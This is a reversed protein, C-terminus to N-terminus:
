AVKWEMGIAELLAVQEPTISVESKEGLYAKRYQTLWEGLYYGDPCVYTRAMSLHGNEAFFASAHRYGRRWRSEKEWEFGIDGLRGIQDADLKGKRYASRQALLWNYLNTGNECCYDQPVNLNGHDIAYQRACAYMQQWKAHRQKVPEGDLARLQEEKDASLLGKEMKRRQAALWHGLWVGEVVLDDPLHYTNHGAMYQKVMELRQQWSVNKRVSWVMGMAELQAQRDKSLRGNQMAYRQSCIWKGLKYGGPATYQDSVLLDGHSLYYREAEQLGRAWAREQSEEWVMGMRDLTAIQEHSLPIGACKGKRLRRLRNLWEGLRIGEPTVYGRPVDLHGNERFYAQAADLNGTTLVNRKHWAMGIEDLQLIRERTLYHRHSGESQWQRLHHIWTGLAVGDETTYRAPVNLDGHAKRYEKAAEYKKQWNLDVVYDWQMGIEDLQMVQVQTLRGEVKGRRISRQKHLWRGLAYGEPTIYDTPVNLDGYTQFYARAIGYFVDWGATLTDNLKEFLERCERVEDIVQFRQRIGEEREGHSRYYAFAVEMEDELAGISYLNEINLVIDFIVVDNQKAASLARGIQQKYIIPSVTPRLLIVGSVDDVHIGENLADICYLLRLHSTDQDEKFAKFSRNSEVDPTYISYVHPQTDVKAFWEGHGMMEDMHEKNACFIIYKGTRNEMHKDFVVDLGDAQDLARRLKDLYQKAADRVPKSRANRIRVEYKMLSERYQFVSLVYKPPNLIGRVIAEGLTMESAVHGDFLEQAMDRQNDLYRINTASLGLVPKGAHIHLLKEVGQGWMQAGCRHFEDLIIYDPALAEIEDSSMLMLKAYTVFHINQPLEGGCVASLNEMQTAYIYESPSLWCISSEPHDECLKFGIFSKGTGTPHIIAAKGCEELMELAAEYAKANHEYLTVPM